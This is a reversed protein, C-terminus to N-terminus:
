VGFVIRIGGLNASRRRSFRAPLVLRRNKQLQQRQRQKKLVKAHYNLYPNVLGNRAFLPQKPNARIIPDPVQNDLPETAIKGQDINQSQKKPKPLPGLLPRKDDPGYQCITRLLNSCPFARFRVVDGPLAAYCTRGDNFNNLWYWFGGSQRKVRNKTPEDKRISKEIGNQDVFDISTDVFEDDLQEASASNESATEAAESASVSTDNPMFSSTRPAEGINYIDFFDPSPLIGGLNACYDFAGQFTNTVLPPSIFTQAAIQPPLTPLTPLPRPPKVPKPPQPLNVPLLTTAVTAVSAATTSPFLFVPRSTTVVEPLQCLGDIIKKPALCPPDLACGDDRTSGSIFAGEERLQRLAPRSSKLFCRRERINFTWFQCAPNDECEKACDDDRDAAFGGGGANFPLDGGIIEVDELVCGPRCYDPGSGCFGYTSCCQGARCDEDVDCEGQAEAGGDFSVGVLSLLVFFWLFSMKLNLGVLTEEHV